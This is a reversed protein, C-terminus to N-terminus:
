WRDLRGHRLWWLECAPAEPLRLARQVMERYVDLQARYSAIASESHTRDTKFDAVVV